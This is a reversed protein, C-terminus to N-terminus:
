KPAQLSRNPTSHCTLTASCCYGQSNIARRAPPHAKVSLDARQIMAERLAGHRPVLCEASQEIMEHAAGSLAFNGAGLRKRPAWARAYFCDIRYQDAKSVVLYNWQLGVAAADIGIQSAQRIQEYDERKLLERIMFMKQANNTVWHLRGAQTRESGSFGMYIGGIFILLALVVAFISYAVIELLM